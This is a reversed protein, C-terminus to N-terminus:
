KSAHEKLVAAVEEDTAARSYFKASERVFGKEGVAVVVAAKSGACRGTVNVVWAGEQPWERFVAYVGPTGLSMMRALRVSRRTGNVLGEAAGTVEAKGPEACGKTRVAMVANKASYNQGAVAPGISLAFEEASLGAGLTLGLIFLGRGSM